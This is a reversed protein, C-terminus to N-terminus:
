ETMPRAGSSTSAFVAVTLPGGDAAVLGVTVHPDALYASEAMYVVDSLAIVSCGLGVAPGNVAAVVPVRCRIMNLVLERGEAIVDRRLTRDGVMRQLLDFDGGTRGDDLM